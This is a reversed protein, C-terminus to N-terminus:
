EIEFKENRSLYIISGLYLPWLIIPYFYRLFFVKKKKVKHDIYIGASMGLGFLIWFAALWLHYM